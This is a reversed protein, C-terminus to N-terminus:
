AGGGANGGARRKHRYFTASPVLKGGCASCQCLRDRRKGGTNEGNEDNGGTLVEPAWEIGPLRAPPGEPPQPDEPEGAVTGLPAPGGVLDTRWRAPVPLMGPVLLAPGAEPGSGSVPAPTPTVVQGAPQETTPALEASRIAAALEVLCVSAVVVLGDVSLPILHATLTAEGYRAAVAVMHSYSAWAAIGAIGATAAVRAAALVPRTAPVRTVLEIAVALAVPPWAAILRAATSPQAHAVNAAVSVAIATALVWWVAFRVRALRDVEATM